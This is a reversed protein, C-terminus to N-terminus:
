LAHTPPGRAMFIPAELSVHKVPLAPEVAVSFNRQLNISNDPAPAAVTSFSYLCHSCEFAELAHTEHNHVLLVGQMFTMCTFLLSLLYKKHSLPM